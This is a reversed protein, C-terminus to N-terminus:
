IIDIGARAERAKGGKRKAPTWHGKGERVYLTFVGQNGRAIGFGSLFSLVFEAIDRARGIYPQVFM